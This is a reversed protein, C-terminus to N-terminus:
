FYKISARQRRNFNLKASLLAIRQMRVYAFLDLESQMKKKALKIRRLRATNRKFWSGDANCCGIFCCCCSSLLLLALYTCYGLSFESGSNVQRKM